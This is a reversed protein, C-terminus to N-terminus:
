SRHWERWLLGPFCFADHLYRRALRKPDRVLRYAWELGLRQLGRPARVQQGALFDITAGAAIAVKCTLRDAFRALWIEQKPAGFGVVLLDPRAEDIRQLIHECEADDREFGWPPSYTGVVRVGPWDKLIRDAAVRAVGPLGGLLYVTMGERRGAALLGPVLDSGAVREPLPRGLWRSAMVVPWGDAVVLDARVYAGRMAADHPLRVVHDLNPTVILHCKQLPETVWALSQALAQQMTVPDIQIGFLPIRPPRLVNM